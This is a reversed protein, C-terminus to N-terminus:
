ICNHRMESTIPPFKLYKKPIFREIWLQCNFADWNIHKDKEQVPLSKLSFRVIKIIVNTNSNIEQNEIFFNVNRRLAVTRSNDM